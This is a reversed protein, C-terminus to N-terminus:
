SNIEDTVLATSKYAFSNGHFLSGFFERVACYSDVLCVVTSEKYRPAPWTLPFMHKLIIDREIKNLSCVQLANNLALRPHVFGHLGEAPKTTHWDYLFLDHLLGGRAAARYDWGLARCVMFSTYAVTLSHEFCTVQSHHNYQKMEQIYDHALLDEICMKFEAINHLEEWKKNITVKVDKLQRNRINAHIHPFASLLRNHQQLLKELSFKNGYMALHQRLNYAENVSHIMDIFMYVTILYALVLKLHWSLISVSLLIYPHVLSLMVYALIGWYVSYKLCVRGHLNFREDSYDWWKSDFFSEMIMGTLYELISTLVIALLISVIINTFLGAQPLIQKVAAASGIVLLAGSGYIPCFPGYLFGSNVFKGSRATKFVSEIIWGAMSYISFYLILNILNPDM